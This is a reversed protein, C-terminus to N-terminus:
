WASFWVESRMYILNTVSCIYPHFRSGFVLGIEVVVKLSAQRLAALARCVNVGNLSSQRQSSVARCLNVDNLPLMPGQM